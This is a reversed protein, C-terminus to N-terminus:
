VFYRAKARLSVRRLGREWERPPSSFCRVYRRPSSLVLIDFLFVRQQAWRWEVQRVVDRIQERQQRGRLAALRGPRDRAIEGGDNTGRDPLESGAVLGGALDRDMGCGDDFRRRDDFRGADDAGAAEDAGESIQSAADEQGFAGADPRRDLDLGRDQQRVCFDCMQTEDAIRDEAGSDIDLGAGHDRVMAILPLLLFDPGGDAALLSAGADLFEAREDAIAAADAGMCNQRRACDKTGVADHRSQGEDVLVFIPRGALSQPRTDIKTDIKEPAEIGHSDPM